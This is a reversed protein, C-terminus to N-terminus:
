VKKSSDIEKTYQLVRYEIFITFVVVFLATLYQHDVAAACAFLVLLAQAVACGGVLLYKNQLGRGIVGAALGGFFLVVLSISIEDTM